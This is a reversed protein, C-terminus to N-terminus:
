PYTVQVTITKSTGVVPTATFTVSLADGAWSFTFGSVSKTRPDSLLADTIAKQTVIQAQAQSPAKPILNLDTGYNATYIPYALRQTIVAKACWVGWSTPGDTTLVRGSGDLVFDGAAFDFEFSTGYTPPPRQAAAQSITQPMPWTPILPTTAM